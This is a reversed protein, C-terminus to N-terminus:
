KEIDAQTMFSEKLRQKLSETFNVKDKTELVVKAELLADNLDNFSLTKIAQQTSGGYYDHDSNTQTDIKRAIVKYQMYSVQPFNKILFDDLEAMEPEVDPSSTGKNGWCNGWTGGLSWSTSFGDKLAREFFHQADKYTKSYYSSKFKDEIHDIIKEAIIREM